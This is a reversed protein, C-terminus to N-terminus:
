KRMIILYGLMYEIVEQHINEFKCHSMKHFRQHGRQRSQM